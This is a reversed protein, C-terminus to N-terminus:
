LRVLRKSHPTSITYQLSICHLATPLHAFRSEPYTLTALSRTSNKRYMQRLDQM